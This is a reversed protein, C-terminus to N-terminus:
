GTVFSFYFCILKYFLLCVFSLCFSFMVFQIQCSGVVEAVEEEGVSRSYNFASTEQLSPRRYGGSVKESCVHEGDSDEHSM